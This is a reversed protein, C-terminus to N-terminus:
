QKSLTEEFEELNGTGAKVRQLIEKQTQTQELAVQEAM